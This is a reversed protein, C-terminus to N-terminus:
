DEHRLRVPQEPEIIIEDRSESLVAAIYEDPDDLADWKARDEPLNLLLVPKHRRWDSRRLLTDLEPKILTMRDFRRFELQRNDLSLVAARKTAWHERDMMLARFAAEAVFPNNTNTRTEPLVRQDHTRVYVRYM